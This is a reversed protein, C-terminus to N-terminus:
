WRVSRGWCYLAISFLLLTQTGALWGGPSIGYATGVVGAMHAMGWLFCLAAFLVSLMVLTRLIEMM